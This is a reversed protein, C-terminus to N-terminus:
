PGERQLGQLLAWRIHLAGRRCGPCPEQFTNALGRLWGKRWTRTGRGCEPRPKETSSTPHSERSRGKLCSLTLVRSVSRQLLTCPSKSSFQTWMPSGCPGPRLNARATQHPKGETEVQGAAPLRGEVAREDTGWLAQLQNGRERLVQSSCSM